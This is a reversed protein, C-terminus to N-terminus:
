GESSTLRGKLEVKNRLRHVARHQSSGVFHWEVFLPKGDRLHALKAVPGGVTASFRIGPIIFSHSYYASGNSSKLRRVVPFLAMRYVPDGFEVFIDLMMESPYEGQGLLFKRLVEEYKTGLAGKYHALGVGWNAVSGRWFISAAFYRFDSWRVGAPLDKSQYTRKGDHTSSSESKLLKDRLPFSSQTRSYLHLVHNEGNKQFLQECSDCLLHKRVQENSQLAIRGVANM